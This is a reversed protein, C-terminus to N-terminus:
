GCHPGLLIYKLFWVRTQAHIFDESPLANTYVRPLNGKMKQVSLIEAGMDGAAAAWSEPNVCLSPAKEWVFNIRSSRNAVQRESSGCTQASIWDLSQCHYEGKGSCLTGDASECLSRSQEETMNCKRPHQCLKGFWGKECVCRGCSCTGRGTYRGCSSTLPPYSYIALFILTQLISFAFWLTEGGALCVKRVCVIM